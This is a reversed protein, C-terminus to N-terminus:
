DQEYIARAIVTGLLPPVANGIQKVIQAVSGKFIFTDPFSQIRAGERPTLARDQYPHICRNSSPHVFNVTITNSPRDPDLRSYCSSFGSTVMGPPLDHISSGAHRIINLMKESHKTSRHWTLIPAGDRIEEQYRTLSLANVYETAEAGSDVRPLDGIAEMLTVASSLEIGGFLDRTSKIIERRNGAMSRYELHHTPRPWEFEKELRNGVIVGRERSQPVGYSAANVTRWSTRYGIESFASLIAALKTGREHTLLGVVNEFVFWRPRLHALMLVYHEVLNNRPDSESLNRFPRISSFGQCPPGGALVDIDGVIDHLTKPSIKTIDGAIGAAHPHNATFTDIRDQLLDIGGVTVFKKTKEFGFSLGGAGCFLDLVRLRTDNPNLACSARTIAMNASKSTTYGEGPVAQAVFDEHTSILLDLPVGLVNSLRKASAADIRLFGREMQKLDSLCIDSAEALETLRLKANRRLERVGGRFFKNNSIM